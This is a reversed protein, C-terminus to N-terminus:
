LEHWEETGEKVCIQALAIKGECILDDDMTDEDWVQVNMDGATDLVKLIM